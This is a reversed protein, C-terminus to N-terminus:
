GQPFVQLLSPESTHDGRFQSITQELYLLGFNQLLSSIDELFHSGKRPLLNAATPVPESEKPLTDTQCSFVVRRESERNCM